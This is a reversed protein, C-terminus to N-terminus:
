VTVNPALLPEPDFVALLATVTVEEGASEAAKVKLGAEGAAACATWNVSLEVPEGVEQCHLKPSPDVLAAWFGLWANAV